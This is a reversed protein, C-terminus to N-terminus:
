ADINPLKSGRAGKRAATDYDLQLGTWFADTTGFFRSLRLGTDVSVACQGAVIGDVQNPTVGIANALRHTSIGMPQLFENQLIDGPTPYKVARSM